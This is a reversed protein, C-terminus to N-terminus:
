ASKFNLLLAGHTGPYFRRGYVLTGHRQVHFCIRFPRYFQQTPGPLSTRGNLLGAEHLRCCLGINLGRCLHLKRSAQFLALGFDSEDVSAELLFDRM